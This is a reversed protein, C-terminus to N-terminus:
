SEPHRLDLTYKHEFAFSLVADLSERYANNTHNAQTQARTVHAIDSNNYYVCSPLGETVHRRERTAHLLNTSEDNRATTDVRPAGNIVGVESCSHRQKFM